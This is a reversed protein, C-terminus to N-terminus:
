RHLAPLILLHRHCYLLEGSLFGGLRTVHYNDSPIIKPLVLVMWRGEMQMSWSGMRTMSGHRSEPQMCCGLVILKRAMHWKSKLGDM